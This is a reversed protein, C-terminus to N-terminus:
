SQQIEDFPLNDPIELLSVCHMKADRYKDRAAQQTSFPAANFLQHLKSICPALDQLEYQMYHRMTDNWIKGSVAYSALCVASAAVFSPLYAVMDCDVLALECLYSALMETKKDADASKLFRPLFQNSTPIAVDFSLVKLILHEMRLVQKKTYTDDTIYVFEGVDPPYIEEFKAALFMAATGVLQLKARMVAMHSLFRDIYNVALHTTETHLKYEESVEILWDVLISRMSATIDQQKRMYNAKPRTRRETTRLHEFIETAYESVGYLSSEVDIDTPTRDSSASSDLVMPSGEPEAVALTSLPLRSPLATLAAPLNPKEAPKAPPASKEGVSQNATEDYIKFDTSEPKAAGFNSFFGETTANQKAARFPQVRGGLLNQNLEGLVARPRVNEGGKGSTLAENETRTNNESSLM